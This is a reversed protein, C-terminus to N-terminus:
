KSALPYTFATSTIVQVLYYVCAFKETKALVEVDVFRSFSGTDKWLRACTSKTESLRSNYFCFLGM